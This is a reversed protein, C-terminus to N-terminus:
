KGSAYYFIVIGSLFMLGSIIYFTVSARSAKGALENVQMKKYGREYIFSNQQEETGRLPFGCNTCFQDLENTKEFCCKCSPITAASSQYGDM